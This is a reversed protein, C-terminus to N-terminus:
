NDPQNLKFREDMAQFFEASANLREDQSLGDIKSSLEVLKGFLRKKYRLAKLLWPNEHVVNAFYYIVDFDAHEGHALYLADNLWTFFMDPIGFCEHATKSFNLVTCHNNKYVKWVSPAAEVATRINKLEDKDNVIKTLLFLIKTYRDDSRLYQYPLLEASRVAKELQRVIVSVEKKLEEDLLVLSRKAQDLFPNVRFIEGSPARRLRTERMFSQVLPPIGKDGLYKDLECETAYCRVDNFTVVIDHRSRPNYVVNGKPEKYATPVPFARVTDFVFRFFADIRQKNDTPTKVTRPKSKTTKKM